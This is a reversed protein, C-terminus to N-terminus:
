MRFNALYSGLTKVVEESSWYFTPNDYICQPCEGPAFRSMTVLKTLDASDASYPSIYNAVSITESLYDVYTYQEKTQQELEESYATSKVIVEKGEYQATYVMRDGRKINTLETTGPWNQDLM